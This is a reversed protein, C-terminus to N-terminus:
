TQNKEIKYDEALGLLSRRTGRIELYTNESCGCDLLLVVIANVLFDYANMSEFFCDVKWSSYRDGSVEVDGQGEIKSFIEEQISRLPRNPRDESYFSMHYDTEPM